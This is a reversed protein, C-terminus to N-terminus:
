INDYAYGTNYKELNEIDIDRKHRFYAMLLSNELAREYNAM